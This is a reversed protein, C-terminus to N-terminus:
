NDRERLGRDLADDIMQQQRRRDSNYFDGVFVNVPRVSKTDGGGSSGGGHSGGASAAGAGGSAAAGKPAAGGGGFQKAAVAAAAAGSGFAAAAAAHTAAGRLDGFALSGISYAGHKLAETAMQVALAKLADGIFKKMAEGASVSGDIWATLGASVAGTLMQFAQAYANFDDLKGFTSELFTTKKQQQAALRQNWDDTLAKYKESLIAQTDISSTDPMGMAQALADAYTTSGFGLIGGATDTGGMTAVDGFRGGGPKGKGPLKGILRNSASYFSAEDIGAGGGDAWRDRAGVLKGGGAAAAAKPIWGRAEAIARANAGLDGGTDKLVQEAGIAILEVAKSLALLLPAMSQVLAGIANKMKDFSDDMSVGMKQISEGATLTSTDVGAAKEALAAMLNNFQELDTKGERVQVGLSELGRTKLSVMAQTVKETVEHQDFGARTLAVMAREATEMQEQNAKIVGAQAKAAFATLENETRLGLSAARLRDINASGAATAQKMDEAYGKWADGLFGVVKAGLELTQNVNGLKGIWDDYSKNRQQASELQAQALKKEEGTLDKLATKLESPDAKFQTLVKSLFEIAM